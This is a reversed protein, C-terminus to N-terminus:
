FKYTSVLSQLDSAILKIETSSENAGSAQIATEKAMDHISMISESISKSIASQEESSSAIATNLEFIHNVTNTIEDLVDIANSADQATSLAQTSGEQMVSVTSKVNAQFSEILSQIQTTSDQTRSALTRVEDAVVAFGRGQEGARAAEIAANLALLNTQEAIGRIVDLVTSINNSNEELDKTVDTSSQLKTALSNISLNVGQFVQKGKLVSENAMEASNAAIQINTTIEKSSSLMQQTANAVEDSKKQQSSALHLTADSIVTNTASSKELNESFTPIQSFTQKLNGVFQNFLQSIRTVEDNGTIELTASLDGTKLAVESLHSHLLGLRGNISNAITLVAGIILVVLFSTILLLTTYIDESQSTIKASLEEIIIDFIQETKHVAARMEGHLGEKPTLGLQKYLKGFELFTTHYISMQDSVDKVLGESMIATQLHQNFVAYNRDFKDLYKDLKRLMFDKENRRLMLMDATLQISNSEKLLTEANHVSQRLKGRIGSKPNLGIQQHLSIIQNFSAKYSQLYQGLDTLHEKKERGLDLRKINKSITNVAAILADFNKNFKQQYKLDLRSLFDKENRRLMLMNTESKQSFLLTENLLKITSFSSLAVVALVALCITVLGALAYLKLKITFNNM